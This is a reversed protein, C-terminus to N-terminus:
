RKNNENILDFLQEFKTDIKNDIQEFKTDIKANIKEINAELRINDAKLESYSDKSSFKTSVDELIVRRQEAFQVATNKDNESVKEAVCNIRLSVGNLEPKTVVDEKKPCFLQILFYAVISALIVAPANNFLFVEM